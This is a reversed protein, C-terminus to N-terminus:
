IKLLGRLEISNIRLKLLLDFLSLPYSSAWFTMTHGVRVTQLKNWDLLQASSCWLMTTADTRGLWHGSGCLCNYLCNALFRMLMCKLTPTMNHNKERKQLYYKHIKNHYQVVYVCYFTFVNYELNEIYGNGIKRTVFPSYTTSTNSELSTAMMYIKHYFIKHWPHFKKM